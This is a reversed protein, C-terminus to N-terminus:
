VGFSLKLIAYVCAVASRSRLLLHQRDDAALKWSEDHVYDEIIVQMGLRMHYRQDLRRVAADRHRRAALRPDAGRGCPQPRAAGIVIISSPSPSRFTARGRDRAAALFARHRVAGLRARPRPALPTRMHPQREDRRRGDVAYGVVWLVITCRSRASRPRARWGSASPRRRLRPRHGLDSPPHRRAHPPDAGLHLRVPHAPRHAHRHVVAGQRLREPRVGGRAAVLRAAAIGFYLAAGTIRHVISMMMTLMPKYIQLHPSLPRQRARPDRGNSPQGSVKAARSTSANTVFSRLPRLRLRATM